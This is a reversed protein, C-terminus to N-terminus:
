GWQWGIRRMLDRFARHRMLHRYAHYLTTNTRLWTGVLKKCISLASWKGRYVRWAFLLYERRIQRRSFGPLDLVARRRELTMDLGQELLNMEQCKDYLVTGPYPTFISHYYFDPDCDRTCQVTEQFEEWTEGPLGVLVYL